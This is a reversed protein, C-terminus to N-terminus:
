YAAQPELWNQLFRELWNGLETDFQQYGQRHLAAQQAGCLKLRQAGNMLWREMIDLTVEPHFQIGYVHKNYRYAQNQFIDGQALLEASAPVQFGERHWHYVHLSQQFLERGASTPAIPYYGIEAHGEPHLDVTSGLVRAMLQAGLCIGLFPLKAHLVSPLWDLEARIGPLHEDNASMPGGFMVIGAYDSLEQPLAQGIMPCRVDLTYGHAQLREGVRGTSSNEQHVVMLFTNNMVQMM